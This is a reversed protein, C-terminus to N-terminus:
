DSSSYALRGMSMEFSDFDIILSSEDFSAPQITHRAASTSSLPTSTLPTPLVASGVAITSTEDAATAISNAIPKVGNEHGDLNPKIGVYLLNVTQRKRGRAGFPVSGISKLMAPGTARRQEIKKPQNNSPNPPVHTARRQTISAASPQRLIYKDLGLNRVIKVKPDFCVGNQIAWKKMSRTLRFDSNLPLSAITSVDLKEQLFSVVMKGFSTEAIMSSVIKRIQKEDVHWEFLYQFSGGQDTCALIRNPEGSADDTNVEIGSSVFVSRTPVQFEIHDKLYTIVQHPWKESAEDSSVVELSAQDM